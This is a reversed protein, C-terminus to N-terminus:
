FPWTAAILTGAVGAVAGSLVLAWDRPKVRLLNILLATIILIVAVILLQGLELGLNFAFLPLTISAEKGLLSRLYNSFGLGHILGFFLAMAYRAWGGAPERQGAQQLNILCTVVITVPILFEILETRFSVLKLTALALTISHGVTFATVLILLKRWHVAQYIACLATVFLIHDYAGLDSIHRIGETLYLEFETM